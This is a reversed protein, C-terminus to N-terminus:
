FRGEDLAAKLAVIPPNFRNQKIVFIKSGTQKCAEIVRDADATRLTMPKEIVLPKGTTSLALITSAHDGTPTLISFVDIHSDAMLDTLNSYWPVGLRAGTDKAVQPVVDCVAVIEADAISSIAIIHKKSIAGCGVLAFRIM